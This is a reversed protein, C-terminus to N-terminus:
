RSARVARRRDRDLAGAQVRREPRAPLDRDARGRDPARGDAAPVPRREAGHHAHRHARRPLARLLVRRLHALGLQRRAQRAIYVRAFGLGTLVGVVALYVLERNRYSLSLARAGVLRARRDRRDPGRDRRTALLRRGIGAQPPEPSQAPSRRRSTRRRGRGHHRRPRRRTRGRGAAAARRRGRPPAHGRRRSPAVYERTREDPEGPSPDGEVLAFLVATINDDGGRPERGPDAGQRRRRPRRPQTNM